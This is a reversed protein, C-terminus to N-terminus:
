GGQAGSSNPPTFDDEGAPDDDQETETTTPEGYGDEDYDALRERTPDTQPQPMTEEKPSEM